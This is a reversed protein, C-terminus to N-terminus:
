PKTSEKRQEKEQLIAIVKQHVGVKERNHLLLEDLSLFGLNCLHCYARIPPVLMFQGNSM